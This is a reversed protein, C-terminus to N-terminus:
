VNNRVSFCYKLTKETPKLLKTYEDGVNRYVNKNQIYIRTSVNKMRPILTKKVDISHVIYM